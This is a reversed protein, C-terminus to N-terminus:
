DILITIEMEEHHKRYNYLSVDIVNYGTRDKITKKISDKLHTYDIKYDNKIYLRLHGNTNLRFYYEIDHKQYPNELIDIIKDVVSGVFLGNKLSVFVNGLDKLGHFDLVDKEIPQQRYSYLIKSFKVPDEDIVFYGDKDKKALVSNIMGHLFTDKPISDKTISFIVGQCNFSVIMKYKKKIVM